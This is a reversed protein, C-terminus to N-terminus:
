LATIILYGQRYSCDAFRNAFYNTGKELFEYIVAGASPIDLNSYKIKIKM